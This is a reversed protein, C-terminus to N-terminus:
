FTFSLNGLVCGFQRCLRKLCQEIMNNAVASFKFHDQNHTFSRCFPPSFVGFSPTSRWRWRLLPWWWRTLCLEWKLSFVPVFVDLTEMLPLSEESSFFSPCFWELPLSEGWNASQSTWCNHHQKNSPSSSADSLLSDNIMMLQLTPSLNPISWIKTPPEYRRPYIQLCSTDKRPWSTRRKISIAYILTYQTSM